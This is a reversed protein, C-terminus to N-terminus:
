QKKTKEVKKYRWQFGGASKRARKCCAWISQHATGTIRSAELTGYFENVVVNNKIQLVCKAIPNNKGLRGSMTKKRQLVDFSHKANESATVWELNEVRNDNRIGNKHNVQPKNEPNSIFTEAVLRHVLKYFRKGNKLLGVELYQTRKQNLAMQRLQRKKRSYVNGTDAILYGPFNKIQALRVM